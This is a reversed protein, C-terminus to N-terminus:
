VFFAGACGAAERSATRIIEQRAPARKAARVPPGNREVAAHNPRVNSQTDIRAGHGSRENALAKKQPKTM